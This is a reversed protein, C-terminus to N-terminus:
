SQRSERAPRRQCHSSGACRLAPGCVQRCLRWEHQGVDPGCSAADLNAKLGPWFKEISAPLWIPTILPLTMRIYQDGQLLIGQRQEVDRRMSTTRGFAKGFKSIKAPFGPDARDGAVTMRIYQDGKFFYAKGNNWMVAADINDAL